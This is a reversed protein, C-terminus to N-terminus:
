IKRLAVHIPSQWAQAKYIKGRDMGGSGGGRGKINVHEKAGNGREVREFHFGSNSSGGRKELLLRAALSKRAPITGSCGM